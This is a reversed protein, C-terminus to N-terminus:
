CLGGYVVMFLILMMIEILSVNLWPKTMCWKKTKFKATVTRINIITKLLSKPHKNKGWFVSFTVHVHLLCLVSQQVYGYRCGGWDERRGLFFDNFTVYIVSPEPQPRINWYCRLNEDHQDPAIYPTGPYNPSSILATHEEIRGGCVVFTSYLTVPYSFFSVLM